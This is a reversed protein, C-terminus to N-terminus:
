GARKMARRTTASTMESQYGSWSVSPLLTKRSPDLPLNPGLGLMLTLYVLALAVQAPRRKPRSGRRGTKM